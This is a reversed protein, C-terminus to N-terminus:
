LAGNSDFQLHQTSFESGTNKVLMTSIVLRIAPTLRKQSLKKLWFYFPIISLFENKERLLFINKKKIM